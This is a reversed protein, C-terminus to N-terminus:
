PIKRFFNWPFLVQFFFKRASDESAESCFDILILFPSVVGACILPVHWLSFDASVLDWALLPKFILFYYIIFTYLGLVIGSMVDWLVIKMKKMLTHLDM